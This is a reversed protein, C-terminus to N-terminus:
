ANNSGEVAPGFGFAFLPEEPNEDGASSASLVVPMDPRLDKTVTLHAFVRVGEPLDVYGVAYPVIEGTKGLHLVTYSYLRGHSSLAFSIINESLCSPCVDTKPFSAEGCADCRGGLLRPSKRDDLVFCSGPLVGLLMSSKTASSTQM